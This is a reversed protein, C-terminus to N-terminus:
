EGWDENARAILYAHIAESDAESLVDAFSAMGLGLMAGQLVIAKFAQHTEPAMHRLDKIVGGGVANRGHCMSCTKDYLEAGRQVTDESARL